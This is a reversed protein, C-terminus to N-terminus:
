IMRQVHSSLDYIVTTFPLPLKTFSRLRFHLHTVQQAEGKSRSMETAADGVLGQEGQQTEHERGVLDFRCSILLNAVSDKM